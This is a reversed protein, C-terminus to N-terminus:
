LPTSFQKKMRHKKVWLPKRFSSRGKRTLWTFSVTWLDSAHFATAPLTGCFKKRATIQINQIPLIPLLRNPRWENRSVTGSVSMFASLPSCSFPLSCASAGPRTISRASTFPCFPKTRTGRSDPLVHKSKSFTIEAPFTPIPFLRVTAPTIGTKTLDKWSAPMNSTTPLLRASPLFGSASFIRATRYTCDAIRSLFIMKLYAFAASSRRRRCDTLLISRPDLEVITNFNVAYIMGSSASLVSRSFDEPMYNYDIRINEFTSDRSSYRILGTQSGFWINGLLDEAAAAIYNSGLGDEDTFSKRKGTKKDFIAVGGGLSALWITGRRDQFVNHVVVYRLDDPDKTDIDYNIFNDTAPQYRSVGLRTGLFVDGDRDCLMSTIIGTPISHPDNSDSVYHRYDGTILNYKYLGTAWNGFWINRASDERIFIVSREYFEPDNKVGEFKRFKGTAPNFIVIARRSGIWYEGDVVTICFFCNVKIDDSPIRFSRFEETRKDYCILGAGDAVFWIRELSDEIMDGTSMYSPPKDSFIKKHPWLVRFTQNVPSYVSVGSMSCFWVNGEDDEYIDHVFANINTTPDYEITPILTFTKAQTDFYYPANQWTSIYLNGKRDSMLDVVNYSSATKGSGSIFLISDINGSLADYSILSSDQVSHFWIKGSPTKVIDEVTKESFVKMKLPNYRHNYFRNESYSYFNLGKFTALWFGNLLSDEILSASSLHTSSLSAPDKEDHFWATYDNRDPDFRLLGEYTIFWLNKKRDPCIKYVVGLAVNILSDSSVHPKFRRNKKDYSVVGQSTACWILGEADECLATICNGPLSATDTRTKRFVEFHSGDFRNLGNLTGFWMFGDRDKLACNVDPYSLGDKTSLRKFTFHHAQPSADTGLLIGCVSIFFIKLRLTM